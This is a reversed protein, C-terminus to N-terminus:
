AFEYIIERVYELPEHRKFKKVLSFQQSEIGWAFRTIEIVRSTIIEGNANLNLNKIFELLFDKTSLQQRCLNATQRLSNLILPNKILCRAIMIGDAETSRAMQKASNENVIDGSIILPLNVCLRRTVQLREIAISNLIPKYMEIATRYHMVLYDLPAINFLENLIKTQQTADDFGTRLKISYPIIDKCVSSLNQHIDKFLKLNEPLLLGSGNNSKIVRPSPCGANFNIGDVDLELLNEATKALRYPDNGLLQVTINKYDNANKTFNNLFQRLYRKTPVSNNVNIFPTFWHEVLNLANMTRCFADDMIGEMPGPLVKPITFLKNKKVININEFFNIKGM